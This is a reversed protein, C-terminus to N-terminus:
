VVVRRTGVYAVRDRRRVDIVLHPRLAIRIAGIERRIDDEVETKAVGRLRADLSALERQFVSTLPTGDRKQAALRLRQTASERAWGIPHPQSFIARRESPQLAAIAVRIWHPPLLLEGSLWKELVDVSEVDFAHDPLPLITTMNAVVFKCLATWSRLAAFM